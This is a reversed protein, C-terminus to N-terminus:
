GVTWGLNSRYIDLNMATWLKVEWIPEGNTTKASDDLRGYVDATIRTPYYDSLESLKAAYNIARGVWVLDNSGRIGTRAVFLESTDIGVTQKVAYNSKPYQTKMAPNVITKVAYNIKLSSRAASTEKSGGVYVAMIRDGNFATIVGGESRIIKAACHLYSKYIEAGFSDKYGDVLKTSESLDACLVAGDLKVADKGLKLDDSDPVQQGDRTSWQESFIKKVQAKLDDGLSVPPRDEQYERDFDHGSETM